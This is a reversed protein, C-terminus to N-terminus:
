HEEGSDTPGKDEFAIRTQADPVTAGKAQIHNSLSELLSREESGASSLEILSQVFRRFLEQRRLGNDDLYDDVKHVDGARWLHMLRHVRDILPIPRGSPAEYGMSRRKRQAWTRLKIKSGSDGNDEVEADTDPDPEEEDEDNNSASGTHSVLDWVSELDRDSLGCATAYLICAGAPAEDLGFDHRHLLYYATPADMRDVAAMDSDEDKGTLVQGVVFDVVMRRVNTLFEGVGMIESAANAKKVIPHKSYAELAPGTAAWVFDPGRIGADWYERLRERINVRMEEMVINDWGPRAIVLRKKCILWVSSSLAASNMGRMRNGMETQIPWSGDVIFGARIIASVLTEWANPHKHAFVIVLRGDDHLSKECAIFARAMGDEYTQKSVKSDGGHRSDDDILEGDNEEHNWKPSTEANLWGEGELPTGHIIRKIWVFFFDMCDSYPIADYYPPDTVIADLRGGQAQTASRRTVTVSPSAKFADLATDIYRAVWDLQAFISGGVQNITALEAVDWTIPLAFRAFTHGIKEGSNHWTCVTSNYDATKDFLIVLFAAVADRWDPPLSAENVTAVRRLQRVLTGLALLQRSSFLDRWRMLGYGQISFARAAGRGGGAPTPENPLGFPIDAFVRDLQNETKAACDLEHETPLRYEKSTQSETVVVTAVVGLRGAKGEIRIDEMTMFMGCCPCQTGSRSMTGAGLRKDHERKQAANGGQAPVSAQVGFEAGTMDANPKMTLLVRKRDNKCLWRTKLLPVTARCNKCKVTRAWLYAVTPKAVWRPNKKDRLYEESFDANLAGIDPTGDEKTPILRMAQKEYPKPHKMDLPEFDAYTPYYQALEKRAQNLVWRGWARVHWALDARPARGSDEKLSEFLDNQAELQQKKTRKTRGVLHPHAQYFDEMFAQDELIFDPLPHTKGALKQPYELTCKLIFWAVPNIDVATAECGLRMAELPIAGGGAFPDLVRPMRGGYAKKIQERFWALEKERHQAQTRYAEIAKRGGSKPETGLWGLVGGEVEEKVREVISGNPMKKRETRQVVKGGIRECLKQRDEPTGPDPLLVALLAARCAALPRRAPWIHLTSIHGHRVNKEHVSTLSAQKLPFAREILRPKDTMPERQNASPIATVPESKITKEPPNGPCTSPATEVPERTPQLPVGLLEWHLEKTELNVGIAEFGSRRLRQVLADSLEAFRIFHLGRRPFDDAERSLRDLLIEDKSFIVTVAPKALHGQLHARFRSVLQSPKLKEISLGCTSVRDLLEQPDFVRANRSLTYGLTSEAGFRSVLRWTLSRAAEYQKEGDLQDAFISLLPGQDIADRVFEHEGTTHPPFVLVETDIDGLWEDIFPQVLTWELGGNGCGLAPVTISAIRERILYERLWRLGKAVYEYKSPDRWHVKTPLNVIIAEEDALDEAKWVFATGPQLEKSECVTAYQRFMDPYRTKFLLAIGKGMVGVCNVTNVRAHAPYEFMDGTVYRIM